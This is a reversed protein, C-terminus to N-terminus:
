VLVQKYRLVVAVDGLVDPLRVATPKQSVYAVFFPLNRQSRDAAREGQAVNVVPHTEVSEAGTVAVPLWCLGVRFAPPTIQEGRGSEEESV